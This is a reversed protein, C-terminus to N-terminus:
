PTPEPILYLGGGKEVKVIDYMNYLQLQQTNYFINYGAKVILNAGNQVRFYPSKIKGTDPHTINHRNFVDSKGLAEVEHYAYVFKSEGAKVWTDVMVVNKDWFTDNPLIFYPTIFATAFANMYLPLTNPNTNTKDAYLSAYANSYGPFSWASEITRIIRVTYDFGQFEIRAAFGYNKGIILSYNFLKFKQYNSLYFTYAERGHKDDSDGLHNIHSYIGLRYVGDKYKWGIRNSNRNIGAFLMRLQMLKQTKVDDFDTNNGLYAQGRLRRMSFQNNYHGSTATFVLRIFNQQTILANTFPQWFASIPGVYTAFGGTQASIGKISIFLLIFIIYRKM